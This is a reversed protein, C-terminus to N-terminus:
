LGQRLEEEAQRLTRIEMLADDILGGPIQQVEGELGDPKTDTLRELEGRLAQMKEAVRYAANFGAETVPASRQAKGSFSEVAEDIYSVLPRAEVTTPISNRFQLVGDIMSQDIAVLTQQKLNQLTPPLSPSQWYPLELIDHVQRRLRAMEDLITLAAESLDRHMRHLQLMRRLVALIRYAELKSEFEPTRIAARRRHNVVGAIILGGILLPAFGLFAAAKGIPVLVAWLCLGGAVGLATTTTEASRVERFLDVRETEHLYSVLYPYQESKNGFLM